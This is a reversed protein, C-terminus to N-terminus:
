KQGVSSLTQSFVKSSGYKSFKNPFSIFIESVKQISPNGGVDPLFVEPM